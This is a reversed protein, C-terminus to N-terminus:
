SSANERPLLRAHWGVHVPARFRERWAGLTEVTLDFVETERSVEGGRALQSFADRTIQIVNGARDVFFVGSGALLHVGFAGELLRLSRYLGDISCGSPGAARQDVAVTLFRDHSWDRAADLPRGHAHWHELFRDVDALLRAAETDDLARDCGFVWVRADDPLTEFPVIPM